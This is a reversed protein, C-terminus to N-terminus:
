SASATATPTEINVSESLRRRDAEAREAPVTIRMQAEILKKEARIAEEEAILANKAAELQDGTMQSYDSM